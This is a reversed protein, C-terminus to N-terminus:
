LPNFFILIKMSIYGKQYLKLKDSIEVQFYSPILPIIGKTAAGM